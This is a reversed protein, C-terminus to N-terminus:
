SKKLASFRIEIEWFVDCKVQIGHLRAGDRQKKPSGVHVAIGEDHWELM